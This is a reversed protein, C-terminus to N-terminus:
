SSPRTASTPACSPSRCRRTSATVMACFIPVRRTTGDFDLQPYLHGAAPAKQQLAPINGSYGTALNHVVDWNEFVNANFVPPPLVGAKDTKGGLFFGLVVPWKSIED